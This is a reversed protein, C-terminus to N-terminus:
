HRQDGLALLTGYYRASSAQLHRVGAQYSRLMECLLYDPHRLSLAPADGLAAAMEDARHGVVCLVPSARAAALNHAVTALVTRKGWPLLQKPEGMRTSRAAAAVVAAISPEDQM